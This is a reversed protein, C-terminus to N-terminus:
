GTEGAQRETRERPGTELRQRLGTETTQRQLRYRTEM